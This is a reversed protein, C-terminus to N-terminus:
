REAGQDGAEAALRDALRERALQGYRACAAPDVFGEGSEHRQWFSSAGPHPTVLINCRIAELVAFGREFDSLLPSDSFRFGEASLVSQSDAYVVDVCGNADCSVWSWTTGGPTHVPTIRAVLELPGLRITDGDAFEEVAAVPPFSLLQGFQPDGETSNGRRIDAASVPSALVRAGSAFQLAAIGGSHDFHAHSNLILRVDAIDFGLTSINQQILPATNPLGGDILVHGEPTTILIAALGRTGVYYSNGHILFPEQPANWEACSPCLEESYAATLMAADGDDTTAACAGLILLHAALLCPALLSPRVPRRPENPPMSRMPPIM